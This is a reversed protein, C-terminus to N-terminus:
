ETARMYTRLDPYKSILTENIQSRTRRQGNIYVVVFADKFGKEAVTKQIAQAERFTKVLGVNYQYIEATGQREISPDKSQEMLDGSYMSRLSVFQIKYSLGAIKEQFQYWSEDQLFPSIEPAKSAIKVNEPVQHLEFDIRRNMYAASSNPQNDVEYKAAPYQAGYAKTVIRESSIGKSTLYNIVWSAQDLSAFIQFTKNGEKPLHSRIELAIEPHKLLIEILRDLKSQHIAGLRTETERFHLPEVPDYQMNKPTTTAIPTTVDPAIPKEPGSPLSSSKEQQNGFVLKEQHDLYFPSLAILQETATERLTGMYLDYGGITGIRNSALLFRKGDSALNFHIDDSASNIPMGINEPTTWQLNKESFYTKFVDYGGMSQPRNSSFYLTRGDNSLFPAIDDYPSNVGSMNMPDSWLGNKYFSYYIDYGGKGELRASSFVIITDNVIFVDKDGEQLRVPCQLPFTQTGESTVKQIYLEAVGNQSRGFLLASGDAQISLLREDGVENLPTLFSEPMSWQGGKQEAQFMNTPIQSIADISSNYSANSNFYIKAPDNPSLIPAWQDEKTNVPVDINTLIAIPRQFSMQYGIQARKIQDFVERVKPHRSEAERVFNKYHTAAEKFQHQDHAMRGMYYHVDPLMKQTTTSIRDLIEKAAEKKGQEYYVFALGSLAQSNTPTQMLQREFLLEASKWDGSYLAKYGSRITDTQYRIGSQCGTVFLLVTMSWLMFWLHSQGKIKM